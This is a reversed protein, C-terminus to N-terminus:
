QLTERLFHWRFTQVAGDGADESSLPAFLSQAFTADPQNLLYVLLDRQDARSTVSGYPDDAENLIRRHDQIDEIM